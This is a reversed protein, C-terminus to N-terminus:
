IRRRQKKTTFITKQFVEYIIEATSYGGLEFELNETEYFYKLYLIGHGKHFDLFLYSTYNYIGLNAFENLIALNHLTCEGVEDEYGSMEFRRHESKFTEKDIHRLQSEIAPDFLLKTRIFDLVDEKSKTQLIEKTMKINQRFTHNQLIVALM